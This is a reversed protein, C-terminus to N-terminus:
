ELKGVVGLSSMKGDAQWFMDEVMAVRRRDAREGWFRRREIRWSELNTVRIADVYLSGRM